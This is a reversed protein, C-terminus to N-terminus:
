NSTSYKSLINRTHLNSSFAIELQTRSLKTDHKLELKKMHLTGLFTILELAKSCM